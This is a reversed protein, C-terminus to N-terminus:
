NKTLKESDFFRDSIMSYGVLVSRHVSMGTRGVDDDPLMVCRRAEILTAMAQVFAKRSDRAKGHKGIASVLYLLVEDRGSKPCIVGPPRLAINRCCAYNAATLKEGLPFCRIPIRHVAQDATTAFIALLVAVVAAGSGHVRLKMSIRRCVDHSCRM